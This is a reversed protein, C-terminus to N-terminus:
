LRERHFLYLALPPFPSINGRGLMSFIESGSPQQQILLSQAHGVQWGSLFFFFVCHYINSMIKEGGISKM